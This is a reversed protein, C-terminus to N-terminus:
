GAAADIRQLAADSVGPVVKRAFPAGSAVAADVDAETLPRPHPEGGVFRVWSTRRRKVVLEPDSLLLTPLYSEDPIRTRAFERRRAPDAGDAALVRSLGRRSLTVWQGAQTYRAADPFPRFRRVGVIWGNGRPLEDFVVTRQLPFGIRWWALTLVRHVPRPVRWRPLSSWRHSYRNVQTEDSPAVLADVGSGAVQAAWPALPRVPYDHGSVLVVWDPDLTDRVHRFVELTAAVMTWGGWVIRLGSDFVQAGWAAADAASIFDPGRDHRLVVLAGPHAARVRRVLREVLPADTHCMVVYCFRDGGSAPPPSGAPM